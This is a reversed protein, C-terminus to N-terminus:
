GRISSHLSFSSLVAAFESMKEDNPRSLGTFLVTDRDVFPQLFWRKAKKGNGCSVVWQGMRYVSAENHLQEVVTTRFEYDVHDELLYRISEEMKELQVAAGATQGYLDPSNKIDMAVYDLLNQSVLEKLIEPRSGNTDLKTLYGMAKIKVLLNSLGPKAQVRLRKALTPLRMDMELLLVNKGTQAMTYAINVASTSKGEGKLASTVGIIKCGEVGPLSFDLNTRLLKYAEAAAFSLNDGLTKRSEEPTLIDRKKRRKDKNFM